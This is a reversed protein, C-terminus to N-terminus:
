GYASSCSVALARISVIASADPLYRHEPSLMLNPNHGTGMSIMTDFGFYTGTQSLDQTESWTNQDRADTVYGNETDMISHFTDILSHLRPETEKLNRYNWMDM